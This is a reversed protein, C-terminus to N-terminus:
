KIKKVFPPKWTGKLVVEEPWYLRLFLVFNGAPAPLWNTEKDKGPSQNQLYLDLSGDPNYKFAERSNLSYRNLPNEIFFFQDNYMTLSWFGKVPPIEDKNFHLVYKNKGNLHNGDSDIETVPYIADAPLNAGLGVAAVYARQLYDNGYDGTKMTIIWGNVMKGAEKQHNAIKELAKKPTDLIAKKITPDLQDFNFDKGAVLGIKAFKALTSEDQKLPPNDKLLNALRKFYADGSLKNVQDRVPTKMDVKNNVLGEPPTYAKGYSSLPTLTYQDQIKYVKQLDEPTGTSYTRGLIWAMNTPSKYEHLGQPLRGKWNPGVIVYDTEETGTTRKGPDAFVDTWGSLIPMLYYRGNENPIHLVYPEKSLDLWAVSYLTDANPATVDTFQPTPYERLNAFQGVPAYHGEPKSVNTTVDKTMSMTVLPYGYIYADIAINELDNSNEQAYLNGFALIILFPLSFYSRLNKKM